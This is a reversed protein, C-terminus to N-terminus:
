WDRATSDLKSLLIEEEDPEPAPADIAKLDVVKGSVFKLYDCQRYLKAIPIYEIFHNATM